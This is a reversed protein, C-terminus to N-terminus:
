FQFDLTATGYAIENDADWYFSLIDVHNADTTLTPNSGGAFIVGAAGDATSEDFEYVKYNTITRSGTGDQKILLQFNGSVSPFYLNVNTISGSGFTLNQKNSHRFDVVTTTADYTPELQTFGACSSGFSVENGDDGKESLQMVTDAGVVLRLVDASSETIYTNNGNDFYLGAQSSISVKDNVGGGAEVLTLLTTGGVVLRVVDSSHEYIYTDPVAALGDLYLKETANIFTSGSAPKLFLSGDPQLTLHAAATDADVTSITTAGEAGVVIGFYDNTNADDMIKLSPNDVNFDFITATGDDMTINGGDASLAIDGNVDLTFDGTANSTTLNSSKISLSNLTLNQMTPRDLQRLDNLKDAVLWRSNNKICLYVGKGKINATIIDGDSGFSNSPFGNLIQTRSGKIHELNAM